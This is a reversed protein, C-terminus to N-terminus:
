RFCELDSEGDPQNCPVSSTELIKQGDTVRAPLTRGHKSQLAASKSNTFCTDLIQGGCKEAFSTAEVLFTEFEKDSHFSEMMARLDRIAAVENKGSMDAAGDFGKGILNKLPLKLDDLTEIIVEALSKGKLSCVQVLRICREIIKFDTVYENWIIETILNSLISIMENQSMHSFNTVNQPHTDMWKRLPAHYKSVFELEELFNGKNKSDTSKDHDRFATNLCRCVFCFAADQSISYELWNFEEYWKRQFKFKRGAQETKYGRKKNEASFVDKLHFSEEKAYIAASSIFIQQLILRM